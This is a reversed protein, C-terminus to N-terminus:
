AESRALAAAVAEALAAPTPAAAQAAVPIGHERLAAATTPGIAIAAPHRANKAPTLAAAQAIFSEVASPSAFIIADAGHRRFSEAASLQTADNETTAYVTLTTVIARGKEELLRALTGDDRTGTVVLLRLHAINERALLERALAAATSEDPLIEVNLRLERLTEATAKGVCALRCLGIGRIDNFSEFFREFFGRAGNASTFVLWDFQGMDKWVSELATTDATYEIDILPIELVTAGHAALADRLAASAPGEPRTIVIRKGSLKLSNM